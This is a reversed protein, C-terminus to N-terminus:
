ALLGLAAFLKERDEVFRTIEDAVRQPSATMEPKTYELLDWGELRLLRRRESDDIVAQRTGHERLGLVEVGAKVHPAAFDMRFRRRGITVVHQYVIRDRVRSNRLIRAMVAEIVSEPRDTGLPHDDLLRRLTAPGRRGPRALKGIMTRLGLHSVLNMVLARDVVESLERAGLVAALDVITRAPKTVPIGHRRTFHNPDFDTSRRVTVGKPYTRTGHPICIEPREPTQVLRWVYAASRHTAASPPGARLTAALLSQEISQPTAASRYVGPHHALLQGGALTTRIAAATCGCQFLQDHSILGYQRSAIRSAAAWDVNPSTPM